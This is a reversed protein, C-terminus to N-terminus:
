FRLDIKSIKAYSMENEPFETLGDLDRMDMHLIKVFQGFGDSDCAAGLFKGILDKGLEGLFESIV